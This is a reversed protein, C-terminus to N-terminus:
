IKYPIRLPNNRRGGKIFDFGNGDPLNVDLLILDLPKEQEKKQRAVRSTGCSFVQVDEASLARCLGEALTTDDEIILIRKM